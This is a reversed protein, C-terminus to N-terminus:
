SLPNERRTQTREKGEIQFAFATARKNRKGCKVDLM